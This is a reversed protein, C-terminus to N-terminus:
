RLIMGMVVVEECCHAVVEGEETVGGGGAPDEVDFGTTYSGAM